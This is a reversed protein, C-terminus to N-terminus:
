PTSGAGTPQALTEDAPILRSRLVKRQRDQSKAERTIRFEAAAEGSKGV